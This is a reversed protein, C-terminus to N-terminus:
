DAEPLDSPQAALWIATKHDLIKPPGGGRHLDAEVATPPPDVLLLKHPRKKSPLKEKGKEEARGDM